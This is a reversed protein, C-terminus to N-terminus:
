AGPKGGLRSASTVFEEAMEAARERTEGTSELVQAVRHAPMLLYIFLSDM